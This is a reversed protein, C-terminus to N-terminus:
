TYCKTLVCLSENLVLSPPFMQSVKDMEKIKCVSVSLLLSIMPSKWARVPSGLLAREQVCKMNRPWYLREVVCFYEKRNRPQIIDAQKNRHRRVGSKRQVRKEEKVSFVQLNGKRKQKGKM